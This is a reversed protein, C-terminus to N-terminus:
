NQNELHSLIRAWIVSFNESIKENKSKFVNKLKFKM